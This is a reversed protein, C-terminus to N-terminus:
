YCITAIVQAPAGAVGPRQVTVIRMQGDGIGGLLTPLVNAAVADSATTQLNLAYATGSTCDVGVTSHGTQITCEDVIRASVIFATARTGSQAVPPCLVMALVCALGVRLRLAPVTNEKM